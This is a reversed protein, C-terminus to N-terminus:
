TDIAQGNRQDISTHIAPLAFARGTNGVQGMRRMAIM